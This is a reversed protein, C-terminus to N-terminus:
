SPTGAGQARRLAVDLLEPLNADLASATTRAGVVVLTSGTVAYVRSRLEAPRDTGTLRLAYGVAGTPLGAPETFVGSLQPGGLPEAPDLAICDGSFTRVQSLLDQAAGTSPLEYVGSEVVVDGPGPVTFERGALLEGALRRLSTETGSLTTCLETQDLAPLERVEDAGPVDAQSLLRALVQAPPGPETEPTDASCAVVACLLGLIVLPPTARRRRVRGAQGM